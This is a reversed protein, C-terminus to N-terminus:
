HWPLAVAASVAWQLGAESLTLLRSAPQGWSSLLSLTPHCCATPPQACTHLAGMQLCLHLDLLLGCLQTLSASPSHLRCMFPQWPAKRWGKGGNISSILGVTGRQLMTKLFPFHIFGPSLPKAHKLLLESNSSKSKVLVKEVRVKM